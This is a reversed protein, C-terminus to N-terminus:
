VKIHRLCRGIRHPPFETIRNVGSDAYIGVSKRKEYAKNTKEKKEVPVKERLEPPFPM